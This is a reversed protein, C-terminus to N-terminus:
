FILICIHISLGMYFQNFSDIKYPFGHTARWVISAPPNANQLLVCSSHDLMAIVCFTTSLNLKGPLCIILFRIERVQQIYRPTKKSPMQIQKSADADDSYMNYDCLITTDLDRGIGSVNPSYLVTICTLRGCSHSWTARTCCSSGNIIKLFFCLFM